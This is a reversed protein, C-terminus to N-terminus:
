PLWFSFRAGAGPRGEAKVGGGHREVIRKVIALGIGTGAFERSAHLRQFLGFLKHAYTMDFGIGNDSVTYWVRAGVRHAGIEVRPAEARASFKAANAILNVWVQRLLRPDGYAAPLVGLSVPVDVDSARLEAVVEAALRSMDVRQRTLETRGVRSFDLFADILEGMRVSSSMVRDLMGRGEESLREGESDRLLYTYGHIARLPARLDHSVSYSFAEMERYATELEATRQAVRQELSDNLVRIELEAGLRETVDRLIVTYLRQEDLDVRSIAVEVPFESGDRRLGFMPQDQESRRLTAYRRASALLRAIPTSRHREPMLTGVDRGQVQDSPYGFMEEAARNFMVVRRREDTIIVADMASAIIAEMQASRERLSREAARQATLDRGVLAYRRPRGPEGPLAFLDLLLRTSGGEGPLTLEFAPAAPGTARMRPLLERRLAEGAALAGLPVANDAATGFVRAAAPNCQECLLDGDAQEALIVVPDPFVEFLTAAQDSRLWARRLARAGAVMLGTLVLAALSLAALTAGTPLSGGWMLGADAPRENMVVVRLPFGGLGAVALVRDADRAVGGAARARALLAAPVEAQEPVSGLVKGDATELRLVDAGSALGERLAQTLRARSLRVAIWAGPRLAQVARVAVIQGEATMLVLGRDAAQAARGVAAPPMWPGAFAGERDGLAVAEILGELHPPLAMDPRPLADPASGLRLMAVDIAQVLRLTDRQLDRAAQAVEAKVARAYAERAEALPLTGALVALAVILLGAAGVLWEAHVSSWRDIRRSLAHLSPPM